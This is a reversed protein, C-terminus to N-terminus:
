YLRYAISLIARFNLIAEEKAEGINNEELSQLHWSEEV